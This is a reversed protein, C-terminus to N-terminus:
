LPGGAPPGQKEIAAMNDAIGRVPPLNAQLGHDSYGNENEHQATHLFHGGTSRNQRLQGQSRTVVGIFVRVKQPLRHAEGIPVATRCIFRQFVLEKLPM